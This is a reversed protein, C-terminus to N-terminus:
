SELGGENPERGIGERSITATRRGILVGTAVIFLGIIVSGLSCNQASCYFDYSEPDLARDEDSMASAKGAAWATAAVGSLLFVMGIVIIVIGLRRM